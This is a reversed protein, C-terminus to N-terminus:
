RDLKLGTVVVRQDPRAAQLVVQNAGASLHLVLAHSGAEVPLDLPPSGPALTVRLTVDAARPAQITLTAAGVFARGRTDADFPEWDTGLILYPAEDPPRIVEYVTLRDDQHVPPQDGFIEQAMGETVTREKGGPMKYRDLVVWRVDLDSLVQQGQKALDFDIIDPELHRLHQLVPVRETLTRPDDRSIYAVTLPKGHVTQYLLYGPRDWNMPLNLVAGGRPDTALVTYFAPTDPPSMPYPVPLFEFLILGIAFAAALRGGTGRQFLWVLGGAALVALALMVMVDLRSVSRSIKMFPVIQVLWGYPLSIERGGPLLATRGGVHLVPGLALLFFSLLALPWPGLSAWRVHGPTVLMQGESPGAEDQPEARLTEQGHGSRCSSKAAGALSETARDPSRGCSALLPWPGLAPRRPHGTRRRANSRGAWLGLGALGLATFGAFVQHESVTSTFGRTQEAAWAGWVPHFEQPTVFALLDASLTRSQAAGPVMFSFQRAERIMPALLPSLALGFILWAGGAAVLVRLYRPGLRAWHIPNGTQVQSAWRRLAGEAASPSHSRAQGSCHVSGTSPRTSPGNKPKLRPDENESLAPRMEAAARCSLLARWGAWVLVVATFLLCYLVYYWDCLGILILFLAALLMDRCPTRPKRYQTNPIPSRANPSPYQPNPIANQAGGVIRVLYLAYFPIWELSIVQMHGLLHAIHFPSFTFIVGAAFAPLRGRGPGLVQRALLYAGFGGVAFSFLVVSNYAPLLGWALQVPLTLLGNFPNLTHFLLGVGTPHDLLDTFFPQAHERLLAVKVWWLNWYNQWGDFGDGPIASAFRTVLPYTLVVTLLLFGAPALVASGRRSSRSRIL